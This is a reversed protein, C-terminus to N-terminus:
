KTIREVTKLAEILQAEPDGERWRRITGALLSCAAPINETHQGRMIADWGAAIKWAMRRDRGSASIILLENAISVAHRDPQEYHQGRQLAFSAAASRHSYDGIALLVREVARDLSDQRTSRRQLYYAAIVGVLAGVITALLQAVFSGWFDM